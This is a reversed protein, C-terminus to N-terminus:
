KTTQIKTIMGWDTDINVNIRIVKFLKNYKFNTLDSLNKFVKAESLNKCSGGTKSIYTNPFHNIIELIFM